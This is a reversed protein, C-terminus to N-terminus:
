FKEKHIFLFDPLTYHLLVSFINRVFGSLKTSNKFKFIMEYISSYQYYIDVNM